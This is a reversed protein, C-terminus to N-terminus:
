GTVQLGQRRIARALLSSAAAFRAQGAGGHHHTGVDGLVPSPRKPGQSRQRDIEHLEQHAGVILDLFKLWCRGM